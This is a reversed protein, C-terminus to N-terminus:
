TRAQARNKRGAVLGAFALGGLGLGMLGVGGALWGGSTDGSGDSPSTSLSPAMPSALGSAFNSWLDGALLSSPAPTPSGAPTELAQGSAATPRAQGPAAVPGSGAAAPAEVAPDSVARPSPSAVAVTGGQTAPAQSAPSVSQPRSQAATPQGPAPQSSPAATVQFAVAPRRAGPQVAVIFYVGPSANTPVRVGVVPEPGAGTGLLVGSASGWRIEVPGQRFASGSVTLASDPPGARSSAWISASDTCAWAAAAGAMLLALVGAAFVMGRRQATSM